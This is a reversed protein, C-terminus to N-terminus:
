VLSVLGVPLAANTTMLSSRSANVCKYVSSAAKGTPKYEGSQCPSRLTFISGSVKM